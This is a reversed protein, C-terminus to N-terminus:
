VAEEIINDNIGRDREHVLRTFYLLANRILISRLSRVHFKTGTRPNEHSPVVRDVVM